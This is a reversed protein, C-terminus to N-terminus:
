ESEEPLDITKGDEIMAPDPKGEGIEVETVRVKMSPLAGRAKAKDLLGSAFDAPTLYGSPKEAAKRADRRLALTKLTKKVRGGIIAIAENNGSHLSTMLKAYDFALLHLQMEDTAQDLDTHEARIAEKAMEYFEQEDGKLHKRSYIGHKLALQNGMMKERLAPAQRANLEDIKPNGKGKPGGYQHHRCYDSGSLATKRCRRGSSRSMGKCRRPKSKVVKSKKQKQMM